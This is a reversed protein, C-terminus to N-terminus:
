HFTVPFTLTNHTTVTEGPVKQITASVTYTGAPPASSLKIQATSQVGPTTQPVVGQGSVTTGSVTVKVVVNTEQNQGDNTFQCTFTPPPSATLTNTSATSLATGAVSCADMKHGHIGPAPKTKSSQGALAVHLQGAVFSPTVWRIDPVFQGGNMQAGTVGAHRLASALQQLAYSKYVVDSAYLHAMDAAIQTVADQNTTNALAPQLYRGADAIGDRRMQLTLVVNRQAEKAADPVSLNRASSLQSDAQLRTQGIQSSVSAANSAGSAGALVGFFRRGTQNSRQILGALNDNYDKLANKRASSECSSVGVAVLILLLLLGGAAVARRIVIAQRDTPPRRGRGSARRRPAATHTATPPEDPEDFFSM